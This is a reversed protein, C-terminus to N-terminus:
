RGGGVPGPRASFLVTGVFPRDRVGEPTIWGVVADDRKDGDLDFVWLSLDEEAEEAVAEPPRFSWDPKRGEIAKRVRSGVQGALDSIRELTVVVDPEKSGWGLEKLAALLTRPVGISTGAAAGAYVELTGDPKVLFLDDKEGDGDFDGRNALLDGTAQQRLRQPELVLTRASPLSITFRQRRDPRSSFAAGERAHYVFVDVSVRIPLLLWSLAQPISIDEVRAVLLDPRGNGDDDDLAIGLLNGSAKLVQSPRASFDVGSAGGRYVTIVNGARVLFDARDDGDIDRRIWEVRNSVISALNDPDLSRGKGNKPLGKRLRELDLRFTPKAPISGDPAVLTFSVSDDTEAVLDARGDGNLDALEFLPVKWASEFKEKLDRATVLRPDGVGLTLEVDAPLSGAPSYRGNARTFLLTEGSGPLTLDGDGDGDIDRVLRARRLGLPAHARVEGLLVAPEGPRGDAGISVSLVRKGGELLVIEAKRDGDLDAVDFLIAPSSPLPLVVPTGGAFGADSQLLVSLRNGDAAVLDALGDGTVDRLVLSTPGPAFRLPEARFGISGAGALLLAIM